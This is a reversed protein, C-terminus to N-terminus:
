REDKSYIICYEEIDYVPKNERLNIVVRESGKRIM